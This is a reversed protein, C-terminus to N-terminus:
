PLQVTDLVLRDDELPQGNLVVPLRELTDLLYLGLFIRYEGAPVPIVWEDVVSEGPSWISTPYQGGFPQADAQAIINGNADVVHLFVTYDADPTDKARWFLTISLGEETSTLTYGFLQILGSFDADLRHDPTSTGPPLAIKFTGVTAIDEGTASLMRKQRIVDFVGAVLRYAGPPADDPVLLSYSLPMTEGPTWARVRYTGRLPWDHIGTIASGDRDLVQVFIEVDTAVQHQPRWYLTVTVPQGATPQTSYYGILDLGNELSASLPEVQPQSGMWRAPSIAAALAGNSAFLPQSNGIPEISGSVQPLFHAVGDKLLVWQDHVYGSPQGETTPRDPEAPSIVTVSEESNLPIPVGGARDPFHEALLFALPARQYESTPILMSAELHQRIYDAEAIEVLSARWELGDTANVQPMVRYAFDWQTEIGALLVAVLVLSGAQAPLRPQSELWQWLTAAGMGALIFIFPVAGILRTASPALGEYTILDPVLMVVTIALSFKQGVRRSRFVSVVALVLGVLLVPNLLPRNSYPNYDNEWRWGLMLLQNLLKSGFTIIPDPLEFIFRGATQQTRAFFTYPARIYLIWQPLMVIAATVATLVLGRWRSLFRRDAVIAVLCGVVLAIPFARAVIYAYQSLGLLFGALFFHIRRGRQVGRWLSAICLLAIVPLLTVEFGYRCFLTFFPSLALGLAAIVGARRAFRPGQDALMERCALYAAPAALAGAFATLGRLVTLEFGLLAFVPAQLYIILPHPAFQHHIYLPWLGRKLFDLAYLGLRAADGNIGPPSYLLHMFHTSLSFLLIIFPLWRDHRLIKM